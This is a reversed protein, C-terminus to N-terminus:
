QAVLSGTVVPDNSCIFPTKVKISADLDDGNFEGNIFATIQIGGGFDLPVRANLTTASNNTDIGSATLSGAPIAVTGCLGGLNVVLGKNVHVTATVNKGIQTIDVTLPASSNKDAYGTGSFTGNFPSEEAAFTPAVIGVTIIGIALIIGLVLKKM